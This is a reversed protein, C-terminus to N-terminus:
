HKHWLFWGLFEFFLIAVLLSIVVVEFKTFFFNSNYVSNDDTLLELNTDTIKDIDLDNWVSTYGSTTQYQLTGWSQFRGTYHTGNIWVQCNVTGSTCNYLQGDTLTTFVEARKDYPLLIVVSRNGSQAEVFAGGSVGVFEPFTNGYVFASSTVFPLSLFLVCFFISLLCKKM